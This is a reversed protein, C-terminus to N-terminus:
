VTLGRLSLELMEISQTRDLAVAGVKNWTYKLRELLNDRAPNIQSQPYWTETFGTTEGDIEFLSFTDKYVDLDATTSHPVVRFDLMNEGQMDNQLTHITNFLQPGVINHWRGPPNTLVAEDVLFEQHVQAAKLLEQRGLRLNVNKKNWTPTIVGSGRCLADVYSWIQLTGPFHVTNRYRAVSKEAHLAVESEARTFESLAPDGWEEVAERLQAWNKYLM